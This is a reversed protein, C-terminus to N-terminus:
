STSRVLEGRQFLAFTPLALGACLSAPILITYFAAFSADAQTHLVITEYTTDWVAYGSLLLGLGVAWYLPRRLPGLLARSAWAALQLGIVAFLLANVAAFISTFLVWAADNRTEWSERASTMDHVLQPLTRAGDGFMPAVVTGSLLVVAAVAMAAALFAGLEPWPRARHFVAPAVAIGAPFAAFGIARAVLRIFHTSAQSYDDLLAMPLMVILIGATWVALAILFRQAIKV